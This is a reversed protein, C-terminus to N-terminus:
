MRWNYSLLKKQQYCVNMMWFSFEIYFKSDNIKILTDPFASTGAPLQFNPYPIGQTSIEARFGEIGELFDDPQLSFQVSHESQNPYFVLNLRNNGPIDIVYDYGASQGVQQLTAANIGRGPDGFIIQIGFTQESVRNDEKLLTVNGFTVPILNPEFYYYQPLQFGIQIASFFSINLM